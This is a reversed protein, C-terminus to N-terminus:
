KVSWLFHFSTLASAHQPQPSISNESFSPFLNRHVSISGCTLFQGGGGLESMESSNGDMIIHTHTNLPKAGVIAKIYCPTLIRQGGWKQIRKDNEIKYQVNQRM